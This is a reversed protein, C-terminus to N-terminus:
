RRARRDEHAEFAEYNYRFQNIAAVCKDPRSDPAVSLCHGRQPARAEDHQALRVHRLEAHPDLREVPLESAGGVRVVRAAGTAAAGAALASQHAM